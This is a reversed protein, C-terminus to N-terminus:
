GANDVISLNAYDGLIEDLIPEVDEWRLRGNGCGPKPLFFRDDPFSTLNRELTEALELASQLILMEDAQDRWHHKVPFTAILWEPFLHVHNGHDKLRRALRVSLTNYRIAAQQAVGRGMVARGSANVIGNTTIVRWARGGVPIIAPERLGTHWLDIKLVNM